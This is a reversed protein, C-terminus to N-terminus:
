MSAGRRERVDSLEALPGKLVHERFHVPASTKPLVRDFVHERYFKDSFDTKILWVLGRDVRRKDNRVAPQASAVVDIATVNRAM